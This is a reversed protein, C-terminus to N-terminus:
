KANKVREKNWYPSKCKPCWKPIQESRPYWSHGCRNCSYKNMDNYKAVEQKKPIFKRYYKYTANPNELLDYFDVKFNGPEGAWRSLAIFSPNNHVKADRMVYALQKYKRLLQLRTFVTDFTDKESVYVYWRTGWDKLGNAKMLDLAHIVNNTYAIDDYSFRIERLHNLSQLVNWNNENLLRHDLGQNFDVKLNENNLEKCIMNFHEPLALINNDMLIIKNSKGDWIDYIDGVIHINGEMKPVFCFPCNRICGRTTFGWNIKAKVSEIEPPLKISLDYGSGGIMAKDKYSLCKDKNKPFICSVYCKDVIPLYLPMDWILEDGLLTHYQAIKHLALNPISSDINILLVKCM